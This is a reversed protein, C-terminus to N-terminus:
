IMIIISVMHYCGSGHIHHYLSTEQPPETHRAEAELKSASMRDLLNILRRSRVTSTFDTKLAGLHPAKGYSKIISVVGGCGKCDESWQFSTCKASVGAHM